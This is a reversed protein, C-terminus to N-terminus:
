CIPHEEAHMYRAQGTIMIVQHQIAKTLNVMYVQFVEKGVKWAHESHHKVLGPITLAAVVGIISLTILVEALTFANKHFDLNLLPSQGGALTFANKFKKTM